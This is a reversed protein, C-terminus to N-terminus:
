ASLEGREGAHHRRLIATTNREGDVEGEHVGGECCRWRLLRSVGRWGASAMSLLFSEGHTSRAYSCVQQRQVNNMSVCGRRTTGMINDNKNNKAGISLWRLGEM